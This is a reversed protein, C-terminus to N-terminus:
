SEKQTDGDSNDGDFMEHASATRFHNFQPEFPGDADTLFAPSESTVGETKRSATKKSLASKKAKAPSAVDVPKPSSPNSM